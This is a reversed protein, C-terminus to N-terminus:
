FKSSYEIITDKPAELACLYIKLFNVYETTGPHRLDVFDTRDFKSGKEKVKVMVFTKVVKDLAIGKIDEAEVTKVGNNTLYRLQGKFQPSYTIRGVNM